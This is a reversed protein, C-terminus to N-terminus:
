RRRIWVILGVLLISMPFIVLTLWTILRRDSSTLEVPTFRNIHPMVEIIKENRTIWNVTNLLLNMNSPLPTVFRNAIFAGNGFFASRVTNRDVTMTILSDPLMFDREVVMAVTIPGKQENEDRSPRQNTNATRASALDTEAWSHESSALLRTSRLMNSKETIELSRVYPFLFTQNELKDTIEHKEQPSCYPSVPGGMTSSTFSSSTEYVYNNGFEVGYLRLVPTLNLDVGPANMIIISGENSCYQAVVAIEEDTFAVKPSAIILVTCDDPIEGTGLINIEEVIYNQEELRQRVLNIGNQQTNSLSFEGHGITFYAKKTADTMLRYLAISLEREGHPEYGTPPDLRTQRGQGEFIITRSNVVDYQEAILPNKIPDIYEVEIDHGNRIYKVLLDRIREQSSDNYFAKITVPFTIDDLLLKTQDTLSNIKNNTVDISTTRVAAIYNIIFLAIFLAVALIVPGIGHTYIKKLFVKTVNTRIEQM